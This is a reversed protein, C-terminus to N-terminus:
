SVAASRDKVREWKARSEDAHCNGYALGSECWCDAALAQPHYTGAIMKQFEVGSDDFTHIRRTHAEGRSLRTHFVDGAVLVRGFGGALARQERCAKALDVWGEISDPRPQAPRASWIQALEDIRPNDAEWRKVRRLELGTPRSTWPMPMVWTSTITIPKFGQEAAFAHGTFKGERDSWGLLFAVFEPSVAGEGDGWIERLWTPALDVLEDFTAVHNSTALAGSKVVTGLTCDGQTMVAADLHPILAHKTSRGLVEAGDTYNLTDTIFEAHDGYTAFAIMTM